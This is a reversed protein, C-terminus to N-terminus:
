SGAWQQTHTVTLITATVVWSTHINDCGVDLGSAWPLLGCEVVVPRKDRLPIIIIM